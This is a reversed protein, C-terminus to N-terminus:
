HRGWLFLGTFTEMDTSIFFASNTYLGFQKVADAAAVQLYIAAPQPLNAPM